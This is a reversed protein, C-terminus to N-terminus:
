IFFKVFYLKLRANSPKLASRPSLRQKIKYGMVNCTLGTDLQCLQRKGNMRLHVFWKCEQSKETNIYETIQYLKETKSDLQDERQEADELVYVKKIKGNKSSAQCVKAFHNSVSCTHCTKGYAPCLERGRNHSNRCYKCNWQPDRGNGEFIAGRARSTWLM